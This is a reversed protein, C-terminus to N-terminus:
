QPGAGYSMQQQGAGYSMQQQGAGYSMQQQQPFEAAATAMLTSDM